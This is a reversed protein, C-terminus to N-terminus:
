LCLEWITRPKIIYSDNCLRLTQRRTGVMMECKAGEIAAAVAESYAFWVFYFYMHM